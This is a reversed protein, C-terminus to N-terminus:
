GCPACIRPASYKSGASGPPMRGGRGVFMAMPELGHDGEFVARRRKDANMSEVRFTRRRGDLIGSLKMRRLDIDDVVFLDERRRWLAKAAARVQAARETRRYMDLERLTPDQIMVGRPLGYKAIAQLQVEAPSADRRPPGVEIDLLCSFEQLRMGTTTSLEPAASDRLPSRGRFTRDVRGDPLYGRLGVQKLFNWQRWTLHRVDLTTAGWSCCIADRQTTYPIVAASHAPDAGQPAGDAPTQERSLQCAVTCSDPT